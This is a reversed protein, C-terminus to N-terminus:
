AATAARPATGEAGVRKMARMLLDHMQGTEVIFAAASPGVNPLSRQRGLAEASNRLGRWIDNQEDKMRAIARKQEAPSMQGISAQLASAMEKELYAMREQRYENPPLAPDSAVFGESMRRVGAMLRTLVDDRLTLPEAPKARGLFARKVNDWASPPPEALRQMVSSLGKMLSLPDDVDQDIRHSYARLMQAGQMSAPDVEANEMAVVEEYTPPVETPLDSYDPAPPSGASAHLPTADSGPAADPDTSTKENLPSSRGPTPGLGMKEREQPLLEAVLGEFEAEEAATLPLNLRGLPPKDATLLQDALRSLDDSAATKDSAVTKPSAATGAPGGTGTPAMGLEELTPVRPIGAPDPERLVERRVPQPSRPAQPTMGAKHPLPPANDTRGRAAATGRPPSGDQDVRALDERPVVPPPVPRPPPPLRSKSASPPPPPAAPAAARPPPPPPTSSTSRDQRSAGPAARTAEPPLPAFTSLFPQPTREGAPVEPGLSAQPAPPAPALAVDLASHGATKEEKPQLSSVRPPPPPAPLRRKPTQDGVAEHAAPTDVAHAAAEAAEAAKAAAAEPSGPAHTTTQGPSPSGGSPKSDSASSSSRRAPLPPPPVERRRSIPSAPTEAPDGAAMSADPGSTSSPRSSVTGSGGGSHPSHPPPSHPSGPSRPPLPPAGDGTSPDNFAHAVDPANLMWPSLAEAAQKMLLDLGATIAAENGAAFDTGMLGRGQQTVAQRQQEYSHRELAAEAMRQAQDLSAPSRGELMDMTMRHRQVANFLVLASGADRGGGPCALAIGGTLPAQPDGPRAASRDGAAEAQAQAQHRRAASDLASMQALMENPSATLDLQHLRVMHTASLGQTNQLDFCLCHEGDHMETWVAGEMGGSKFQQPGGNALVHALGHHLLPPHGDVLALDTRGEQHLSSLFRLMQAPDESSSEQRPLAMVQAGPLSPEASPFRFGSVALDHQTVPALGYHPHLQVAPGSGLAHSAPGFPSGHLPGPAYGQPAGFPGGAPWGAHGSATGEGPGPFGSVLGGPTAPSALFHPISYM